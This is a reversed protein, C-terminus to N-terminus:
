PRAPVRRVEERRRLSAVWEEIKQDLAQQELAGRLADAVLSFAIPEQDNVVKENFAKRVEADEVRVQPRLRQDIYSSIAIQVAAKRRLAAPTFGDGAKERLVLAAASVADEPLAESVLRSAEEFMLREDISREIAEKEDLKLLARTLEVDSLLVPKKNVFAVTRELVPGAPASGAGLAM